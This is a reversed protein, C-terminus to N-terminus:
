EFTSESSSFCKDFENDSMYYPKTVCSKQLGMFADSSIEVAASNLLDVSELLICDAFARSGISLVNDIGSIKRLWGKYFCKSPIGRAGEPWM